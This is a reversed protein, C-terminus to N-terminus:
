GNTYIHKPVEAKDCTDKTSEQRSELLVPSASVETGSVRFTGDMLSGLDSGEESVAIWHIRCSSASMSM